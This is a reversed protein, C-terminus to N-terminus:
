ARTWYGKLTVSESQVNDRNEIGLQYNLGQITVDVKHAPTLLAVYTIATAGLLLLAILIVRKRNRQVIEILRRCRRARRRM